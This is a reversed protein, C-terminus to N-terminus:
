RAIELRRIRPDGLELVLKSHRVILQRKAIVLVLRQSGREIQRHGLVGRQGLAEGLAVGRLM